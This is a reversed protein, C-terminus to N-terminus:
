NLTDEYLNKKEDLYVQRIENEKKIAAAEEKAEKIEEEIKSTENAAFDAKLEEYLAKMAILEDTIRCIEKECEEVQGEATAAKQRLNFIVYLEAVMILLLFVVFWVM